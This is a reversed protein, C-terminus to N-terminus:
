RDLKEAIQKLLDSQIRLEELLQDRYHEEKKRALEVKERSLRQVEKMREEWSDDSPDSDEVSLGLEQLSSRMSAKRKADMEAHMRDNEKRMAESRARNEQDIEVVRKLLQNTEALLESDTM